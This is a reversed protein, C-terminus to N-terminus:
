TLSQCDTFRVGQKALRDINPTQIEGGYCSPDSFGLDTMTLLGRRSQLKGDAVILLFNPRKDM